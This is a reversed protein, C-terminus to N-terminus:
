ICPKSPEFIRMRWKLTYIWRIKYSDLQTHNGQYSVLTSPGLKLSLLSQALWLLLSSSVQVQLHGAFVIFSSVCILFIGDIIVMYGAHIVSNQTYLCAALWEYGITQLCSYLQEYGLVMALDDQSLSSYVVFIDPAGISVNFYSCSTHIGPHSCM